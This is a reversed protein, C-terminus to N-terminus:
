SSRRNARVILYAAAFPLCTCTAVPGPLVLRAGSVTKGSAANPTTYRSSIGRLRRRTGTRRPPAFFAFVLSRFRARPLPPPQYKPGLVGPSELHVSCSSERGQVENQSRTKRSTLPLPLTQGRFEFDACTAFGGTPCSRASRGGHM